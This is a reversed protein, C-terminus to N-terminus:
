PHWLSADTTLSTIILDIAHNGDNYSPPRRKGLIIFKILSLFKFNLHYVFKIKKSSHNHTANIDQIRSIYNTNIYENHPEPVYNHEMKDINQLGYLVKAAEEINNINDLINDIESSVDRANPQHQVVNKIV